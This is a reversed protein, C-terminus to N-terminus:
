PEPEVIAPGLGALEEAFWPPYTVDVHVEFGEAAATMVARRAAASDPNRARNLRRQHAICDLFRAFTEDLAAQLAAKLKGGVRPAVGGTSIGIRARGSKVIAQMAVFGFAPQDITCLLFRHKDSLERLWASLKADQPTSLVFFADAVDAETVSAPDVIWRVDAGVERLDHDKEIAERDDAAGIVICRRGVVNLSVPYFAPPLIEEAVRM